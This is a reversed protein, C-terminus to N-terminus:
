HANERISTLQGNGTEGLRLNASSLPKMTKRSSDKGVELILMSQALTLQFRRRDIQVALISERQLRIIVPQYSVGFFRGIEESM